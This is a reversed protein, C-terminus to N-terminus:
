LPPLWIPVSSEVADTEQGLQVSFRFKASGPKHAKVAWTLEKAEGAALAVRQMPADLLEIGEAVISVEATGAQPLQNDIVVGALFPEERPPVPAVTELWVAEIKRSTTPLSPM